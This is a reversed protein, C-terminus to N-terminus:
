HCNEGMHAYWISGNPSWCFECIHKYYIYQHYVCDQLILGAPNMAENTSHELWDANNPPPSPCYIQKVTETIQRELQFSKQKGPIVIFFSVPTLFTISLLSATYMPISLGSFGPLM